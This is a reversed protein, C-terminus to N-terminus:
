LLKGKVHNIIDLLLVMSASASKRASGSTSASIHHPMLISRFGPTTLRQLSWTEFACAWPLCHGTRRLLLLCALPSLATKATTTTHKQQRPVPANKRQRQPPTNQKSANCLSPRRAIKTALTAPGPTRAGTYELIGRPQLVCGEILVVDQKAVIVSYM